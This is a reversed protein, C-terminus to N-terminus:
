GNVKKRSFRGAKLTEYRKTKTPVGFDRWNGIFTGYVYYTAKQVGEEAFAISWDDALKVVPFATTLIGLPTDTSWLVHSLNLDVAKRLLDTTSVSTQGEILVLKKDEDFIIM